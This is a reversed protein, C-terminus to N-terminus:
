HQPAWDRPSSSLHAQVGERATTQVTRLDAPETLLQGPLRALDRLRNGTPVDVPALIVSSAFGLPAPETPAVVTVQIGPEQALANALAATYHAMGGRPWLNILTVRLTAASPSVAPM